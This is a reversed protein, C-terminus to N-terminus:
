FARRLRHIQPAIPGSSGFNWIQQPIAGPAHAHIRSRRAMNGHEAALRDLHELGAIAADIDVSSKPGAAVAPSDEVDRSGPHDADVAVPRRYQAPEIEYVSRAAPQGQDLV